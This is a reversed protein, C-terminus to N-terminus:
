ERAIAWRRGCYLIWAIALICLACVGLALALPAAQVGRRPAARDREASAEGESAAQSAKAGGMARRPPQALTEATLPPPPEALAVRRRLSGSSLNVGQFAGADGAAAHLREAQARGRSSPLSDLLIVGRAPM